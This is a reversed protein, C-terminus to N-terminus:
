ANNWENFIPLLRPVEVLEWDCRGWVSCQPDASVRQCSVLSLCLVLWGLLVRCLQSTIFLHMLYESYYTQFVASIYIHLHFPFCFRLEHCSRLGGAPWPVAPMHIYSHTRTNQSQRVTWRVHSRFLQVCFPPHTCMRLIVVCYAVFFCSVTSRSLTYFTWSLLFRVICNHGFVSGYRRSM